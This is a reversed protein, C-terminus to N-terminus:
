NDKPSEWLMDGVQQAVKRLMPGTIHMYRACMRAAGGPEWGMISDVVVDPVGLLLLVTAATHRADHLRGDRVGADRLLRKRVHYDTNPSLPGGTPSAFM